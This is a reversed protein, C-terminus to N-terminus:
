LLPLGSVQDSQDDHSYVSVQDSQDDHPYVRPIQSGQIVLCEAIILTVTIGLYALLTQPGIM